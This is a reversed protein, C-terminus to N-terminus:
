EKTATILYLNYPRNLGDPDGLDVALLPPNPQLVRRAVLQNLAPIEDPSFAEIEQLTFYKAQDVERGDAVPAQLDLPTLKFILYTSNDEERVRHRVGLLGDVKARVGTEEYVERVVSEHACENFKVYGGPIQWKKAGYTHHVLLLRNDHVVAGGVGLTFKKEM